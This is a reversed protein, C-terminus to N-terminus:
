FEDVLGYGARKALAEIAARQRKDSDKDTGVNAASSTRLYAIATNRRLKSDSDNRPRPSPIGALQVGLVRIEKYSKLWVQNLELGRSPAHREVGSLSRSLRGRKWPPKWRSCNSISM